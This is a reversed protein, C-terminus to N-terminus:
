RMDVVEVGPYAKEDFVFTSEKVPVNPEYKTITCTSKNGTKYYSEMQKIELNDKQIYLRIKYFDKNQVSALDIIQLVKGAKTEEKILKPRFNKEYTALLSNLNFTETANKEFKHVQVEKEEPLYNWIASGNCYVKQTNMDLFYKEGQLIISGSLKENKNEASNETLISFTLKLSTYSKLKKSVSQLIAQAKQDVVGKDTQKNNQSHVSVFAGLSLALCLIFPIIAKKM